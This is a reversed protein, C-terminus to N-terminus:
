IPTENLNMVTGFGAPRRARECHFPRPARNYAVDAAFQSERSERIRNRTDDGCLFRKSIGLPSRKRDWARPDEVCTDFSSATPSRLSVLHESAPARM